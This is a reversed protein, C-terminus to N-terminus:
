AAEEEAHILRVFVEELGPTRRSLERLKWGREQALRAIEPRPDAAPVASLTFRSWEGDAERTTVGAVGPVATLRAAVDDAGAQLELRVENAIQSQAVLEAATGSAAIRGRKIIIVRSCTAEVEPLIHTSLLVTHKGALGRIIDRVARIQQPDLGITPEDLILLEPEHLLADALGVRQRYGKSLQGIIRDGVDTLSCLELVEGLRRKARTRELGRIAARYSLFERVRMDPYLPTNEPMYGLRRRVELSQSMVDFGAVRARGATPPLFCSLMRMTSTKGAGNPGLFGVIEGRAVQFSLENVATHGAYRKTLREAEIM